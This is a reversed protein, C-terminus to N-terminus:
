ILDRYGQIYLVSTLDSYNFQLDAVDNLIKKGKFSIGIGAEKIIDIDNAGDGIAIIDKKPIKLISSYYKLTKLKSEKDFIPKVVEGTLVKSNDSKFEYVFENGHHYHFGLKKSVYYIVPMFGGSVLITKAGNSNMLNILEKGGPTFNIKANLHEITKIDINKLFNVRLQLAKKFDLKGEMAKKTIEKVEKNKKVLKALEDLSEEKIMTSDMDAILLKKKRPPKIEIFNIDYPFNRIIKRLERLHFKAIKIKGLNWEFFHHKKLITLKYKINIKKKLYNNIEDVSLQGIHQNETNSLFLYSTM